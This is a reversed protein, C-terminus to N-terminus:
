LVLPEDRLCVHRLGSSSAGTRTRGNLVVLRLIKFGLVVLGFFEFKPRGNRSNLGLILM